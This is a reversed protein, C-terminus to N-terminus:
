EVGEKLNKRNFFVFFIKQFIDIKGIRLVYQDWSEIIGSEIRWLIQRGGRIKLYVALDV